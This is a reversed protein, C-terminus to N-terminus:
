AVPPARLCVVIREPSQYDSSYKHIIYPCEIIKQSSNLPEIGCSITKFDFSCVECKESLSVINEDHSHESVEHHHESKLM